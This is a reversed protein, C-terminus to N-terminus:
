NSCVCQNTFTTFQCTCNIQDPDCNGGGANRIDNANGCIDMAEGKVECPPVNKCIVDQGDPATPIGFAVLETAAFCALILFCVLFSNAIERSVCNLSNM